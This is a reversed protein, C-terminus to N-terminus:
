GGSSFSSILAILTLAVGILLDLDPTSGRPLGFPYERM